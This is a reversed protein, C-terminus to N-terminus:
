FGVLTPEWPMMAAEAGGRGGPLFSLAGSLMGVAYIGIAHGPKMALTFEALLEGAHAGVITVGLIRDKGPPIIVKVFGHADRDAIALDLDDLGYRTVEYAIGQSKAEAESLGVRAVRSSRCRAVALM